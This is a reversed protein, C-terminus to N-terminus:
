KDFGLIKISKDETYALLPKTPHWKLCYTQMNKNIMHVSEGTEVNNIQIFKDLSGSAILEGDYSFSLTRIASKM